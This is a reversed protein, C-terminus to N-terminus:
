AEKRLVNRAAPELDSTDYETPDRYAEGAVGARRYAAIKAAERKDKEILEPPLGIRKGEGVAVWSATLLLVRSIFSFWLLLGVIVAFSALLPNRTAGGLLKSGLLILTLMGVAGPITGIWLKKNTLSIGALWKHIAYIVFWYAFFLVGYRVIVGVYNFLWSDALEPFAHAALANLVTTAGISVVFILLILVGFAIAMGFDRLKLLLKNEDEQARPEDFLIRVVSRTSSFWTIVLWVLSGMSVLTSWTLATGNLLRGVDIAGGAGFLGPVMENLGEIIADLLEPNDKLYFGFLTFTVWLAAFLAFVSQFSMGAAYIEGGKSNLHNFTRAVRTRQVKELLRPVAKLKKKFRSRQEEPQEQRTEQVRRTDPTRVSQSMDSNARKDAQQENATANPEKIGGDATGDAATQASETRADIVGKDDKDDRAERVDSTLEAIAGSVGASDGRLTSASGRSHHRIM